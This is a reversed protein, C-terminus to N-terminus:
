NLLLYKFILKLYAIKFNYLNNNSALIGEKADSSVQNIGFGMQETILGLQKNRTGFKVCKKIVFLATTPAEGFWRAKEHVFNEFVERM